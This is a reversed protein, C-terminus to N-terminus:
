RRAKGTIRTPTLKWVATHSFAKAINEDAKDMHAPLYKHCLAYLASRKEGDDTVEIVSGSVIASQYNTTFSGSYLAKVDSVVTFTARPDRRMCDAKYGEYACHFYVAGATYIYSLPVGYPEGGDGNLSLIGYEAGRLVAEADAAGLERDKRRMPRGAESM